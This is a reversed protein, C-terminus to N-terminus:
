AKNEYYNEDTVMFPHVRNSEPHDQGPDFSLSTMAMSAPAGSCDSRVTSSMKAGPNEPEPL